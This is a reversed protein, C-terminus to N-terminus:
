LRATRSSSCRQRGDCDHSFSTSAHLTLCFDNAISNFINEQTECTAPVTANSTNTTLLAQPPVTPKYVPVDKAAQCAYRWKKRSM